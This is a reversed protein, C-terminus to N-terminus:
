AGGSWLMRTSASSIRQPSLSQQRNEVLYRDRPFRQPLIEATTWFGAGFIEAFKAKMLM